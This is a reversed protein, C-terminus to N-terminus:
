MYLKCTLTKINLKVAKMPGASNQNTWSMGASNSKFNFVSLAASPNELDRTVKQVRAEVSGTEHM